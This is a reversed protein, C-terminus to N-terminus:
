EDSDEASRIILAQYKRLYFRQLFAHVVKMSPDYTHHNINIDQFNFHASFVHGRPPVYTCVGVSYESSVYVDISRHWRPEKHLLFNGLPSKEKGSFDDVSILAGGIGLLLLSSAIANPSKGLSLLHERVKERTLKSM